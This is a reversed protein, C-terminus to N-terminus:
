KSIVELAKLIPQSLRYLDYLGKITRMGTVAEPNVDGNFLRLDSVDLYVLAEPEGPTPFFNTEFKTFRLTGKLWIFCAHRYTCNGRVVNLFRAHDNEQPFRFGLHVTRAKPKAPTPASESVGLIGYATLDELGQCFKSDCVTALYTKGSSGIRGYMLREPIRDIGTAPERPLAYHGLVKVEKGVFANAMGATPYVFNSLEAVTFTQFQGHPDFGEPVLPEAVSSPSAQALPLVALLCFAVALPTLHMTM